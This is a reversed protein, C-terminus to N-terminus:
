NVHAARIRLARSLDDLRDTLARHVAPTLAPDALAARGLELSEATVVCAPFGHRAIM